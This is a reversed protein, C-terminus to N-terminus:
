KHFHSLLQNYKFMKPKSGDNGSSAFEGASAQPINDIVYLPQNDGRLSNAGRITVSTAAGPADVSAGVSLGAIKGQLMNDISAMKGAEKEDPRYSSVAGTLDSKKMTGYGVVVVEDLVESDDKLVVNIVKQKGVTKEQTSMGVFSYILVSKESPVSISYNGDMDTITGSTTGKVLVNAGPVGFSDEGTVTGKVIIQSFSITSILLMCLLMFIREGAKRKM